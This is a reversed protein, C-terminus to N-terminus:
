HKKKYDTAYFGGGKFHIGGPVSIQRETVEGCKGCKEERNMDAMPKQIEERHNCKPCKYDYTM